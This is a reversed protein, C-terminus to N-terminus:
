YVIGLVTQKTNEDRLSVLESSTDFQEIFTYCKQEDSDVSSDQNESQSGMSLAADPPNQQFAFVSLVFQSLLIVMLLVSLGKSLKKMRM